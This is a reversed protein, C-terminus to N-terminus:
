GVVHRDAASMMAATNKASIRNSGRSGCCGSASRNTSDFPCAAGIRYEAHASAPANGRLSTM